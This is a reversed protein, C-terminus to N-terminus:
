GTEGMADKLRRKAEDSSSLERYLESELLLGDELSLEAGEIVSQKATALAFRPHQAMRQCWATAASLFGETPLVANLVGLECAESAEVVRASLILEAARAPGILRGLRQTGGGGPMIGLSVEPLGVKARESGIRLTCSLALELGGGFAQGDIAAVTPQPMSRLLNWSDRWAHPDGEPREGAAFLKVDELDAHAIFYGDVGGTLMVVGIEDRRAALERLHDRLETMALTNILNRPPRDFTLVALHGDTSQHWLPM